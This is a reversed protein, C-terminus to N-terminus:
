VFDSSEAQEFAFNLKECLMDNGGILQSLGEIDHSVSWTAQWANAEVWGAGSLPDDHTFEGARNKPFLLKQEPNFLKKWGDSRNLFFKYDKKKGMDLAMQSLAYDQFAAEVTIGANDPWYGH